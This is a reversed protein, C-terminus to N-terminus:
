FQSLAQHLNDKARQIRLNLSFAGVPSLFVSLDGTFAEFGM